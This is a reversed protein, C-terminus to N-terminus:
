NRQYVIAIMVWIIGAAMLVPKSKRLHLQEEFIVFTYALAFVALAIYGVTSNTLDLRAYEPATASFALGPMFLLFLANVPCTLFKM